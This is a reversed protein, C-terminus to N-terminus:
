QQVKGLFDEKAVLGFATSDNSGAPDNGLILYAGAPITGHYSEAYYSIMRNDAILYAAGQANKLVQGDITINWGQSSNSPGGSGSGSAQLGFTDGPMGMVKRVLPNGPYNYVVIDGRAVDHCAYYNTLVTVKQGDSLIGKMSDDSIAEPSNTVACDTPKQNQGTSGSPGQQGALQGAISLQAITKGVVVNAVVAAVIAGLMFGGFGVLIIQKRSMIRFNDFNSKL